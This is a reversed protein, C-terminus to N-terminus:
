STARIITSVINDRLADVDDVEFDTTVDDILKAVREGIDNRLSEMIIREENNRVNPEDNMEYADDIADNRLVDREDDDRVNPRKSYGIIFQNAM